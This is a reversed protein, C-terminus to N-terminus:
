VWFSWDLLEQWHCCFNLFHYQQTRLPVFPLNLLVPSFCAPMGMDCCCNNTFLCLKMHLFSHADLSQQTHLNTVKQPATASWKLMLYSFLMMVNMLMKNLIIKLECHLLSIRYNSTLSEDIPHLSTLKLSSIPNSHVHSPSSFNIKM